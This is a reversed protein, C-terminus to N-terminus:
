SLPNDVRVTHMHDVGHVPSEYAGALLVQNATVTGADYDVLSLVRPYGVVVFQAVHASKEWQTAGFAELSM